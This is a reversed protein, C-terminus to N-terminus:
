LLASQGGEERRGQRDPQPAQGLHVGAGGNGIRSEKGESLLRLAEKVDGTKTPKDKGKKGGGKKSDAGPGGVGTTNGDADSFRGIEDHNQNFKAISPPKGTLLRGWEQATERLREKREEKRRRRERKKGPPGQKFPKLTSPRKSPTVPLAARRAREVQHAARQQDRTMGLEEAVRKVQAGTVVTGTRNSVNRALRDYSRKGHWPTKGFKEDRHIAEQVEIHLDSMSRPKDGRTSGVRVPEPRDIGLRKHEKPQPATLYSNGDDGDAIAGEVIRGKAGRVTALVGNPMRM